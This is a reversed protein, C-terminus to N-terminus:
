LRLRSDRRSSSRTSLYRARSAAGRLGHGALAAHTYHTAKGFTAFAKPAYRLRTACRSQSCLTALEFGAAGVLSILPKCIQTQLDKKKKGNKGWKKGWRQLPLAIHRADERLPYAPGKLFPLPALPM